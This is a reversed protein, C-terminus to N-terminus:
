PHELQQVSYQPPALVERSSGFSLSQLNRERVKCHRDSPEDNAGLKVVETWDQNLLRASTEGTVKRGKAELKWFATRIFSTEDGHIFIIEGRGRTQLKEADIKLDSTRRCFASPQWMKLRAISVFVQL